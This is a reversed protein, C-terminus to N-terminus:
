QAAREIASWLASVAFALSSALALLRWRTESALIEHITRNNM